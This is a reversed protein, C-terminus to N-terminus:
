LLNTPKGKCKNKKLSCGLRRCVDESKIKGCRVKEGKNHGQCMEKSKKFKCGFEKCTVPDEQKECLIKYGPYDLGPEEEDSVGSEEGGEEEEEGGEGSEEEPEFASCSLCCNQLIDDQQAESYGLSVAARCDQGEWEKCNFGKADKFWYSDICSATCTRCCKELLDKQGKESYGWLESATNCSFSKWEECAYGEEDLFEADDDCIEKAVDSARCTACCQENIENEGEQTYEETEVAQRCDYGRWEACREGKEDVFLWNDVCSSNCTKCCNDRVDQMEEDTYKSWFGRCDYGAWEACVRDQADLFEPNDKCEPEEPYTIIPPNCTECCNDLLEVLGEESLGWEDAAAKCNYGKWEDCTYGDEDEFFPNDLCAGEPPNWETVPAPTDEPEEEPSDEPIDPEEVPRVVPSPTDPRPPAPDM